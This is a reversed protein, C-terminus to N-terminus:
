RPWWPPTTNVDWLPVSSRALWRCLRYFRPVPPCGWAITNPAIGHWILRTQHCRTCAILLQSWYSPQGDELVLQAGDWDWAHRRGYNSATEWPPWVADSM